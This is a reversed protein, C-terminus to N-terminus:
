QERDPSIQILEKFYPFIMFLFPNTLMASTQQTSACSFANNYIKILIM